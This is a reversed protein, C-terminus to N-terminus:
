QRAPAQRPLIHCGGDSCYTSAPFGTETVLYDLLDVMLTLYISRPMIGEVLEENGGFCHTGFDIDEVIGLM